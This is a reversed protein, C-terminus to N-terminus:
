GDPTRVGAGPSSLQRTAAYLFQDLVVGDKVASQHMIGELRYGARELVRVSAASAIFAEADAATYPHPFVDRLNLWIKRNNAHRAVSLADARRFSRLTCHDTDIQM